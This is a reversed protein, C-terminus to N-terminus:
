RKGAADIVERLTAAARADGSPVAHAYFDLTTSKRGHDLRESVVALPVGAQLMETAMFHRVDHLRFHRLGAAHRARAFSKTVRNPKWATSGDRDDTFVFGVAVGERWSVSCQAHGRLVATTWDDLDVQHQSRTKTDTLVPGHEGEVWGSRFAVRRRDLDVCEWGLGLLQARRAGTSAALAVFCHLAPDTAELHKLLRVMESPTPPQIPTTRVVIRHVREAPNDWIWGWRVAHALASRLVVHM